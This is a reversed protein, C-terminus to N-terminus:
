LWHSMVDFFFLAVMGLLDGEGQACNETM